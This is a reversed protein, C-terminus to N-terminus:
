GKLAEILEEKKMKDFEEIGKEKALERLEDVKLKELPKEEKLLGNQRQEELCNGEHIRFIEPNTMEIGCHKCKM